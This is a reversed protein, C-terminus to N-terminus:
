STQAPWASLRVEIRRQMPHPLSNPTLPAKIEANLRTGILDYSELASAVADIRASALNSVHETASPDATAAHISVPGLICGDLKAEAAQLLKLSAANMASDGKAFYVHFTQPDCATEAQPTYKVTPPAPLPQATALGISAAAVSLSIMTKLM